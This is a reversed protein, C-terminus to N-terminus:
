LLDPWILGTVHCLKFDSLTVRCLTIISFLDIHLLKGIYKDVYVTCLMHFDYLYPKKTKYHLEVFINKLQPLIKLTLFITKCVRTDYYPMSSSM